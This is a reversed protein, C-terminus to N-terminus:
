QAYTNYAIQKMLDDEYAGHQDLFAQLEKDGHKLMRRIKSHGAKITNVASRWEPFQNLVGLIFIEEFSMHAEVDQPTGADITRAIATLGDGRFSNIYGAAILTAVQRQLHVCKCSPVVSLSNM